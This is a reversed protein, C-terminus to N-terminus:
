LSNLYYAFILGLLFAHAWYNKINKLYRPVCYSDYYKLLQQQNAFICTWFNIYKDGKTATKILTEFIIQVIHLICHYIFYLTISTIQAMLLLLTKSFLGKKAHFVFLM